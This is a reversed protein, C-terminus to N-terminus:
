DRRSFRDLLDRLGERLQERTDGGLEAVQERLEHLAAERAELRRRRRVTRRSEHLGGLIGQNANYLYSSFQVLVDDLSILGALKGEKVLPIRRIRNDAMMQLLTEIDAAEDATVPNTTMVDAACTKDADLDAAVLRCVMDRDTIIGRPVGAEAVVVCGVTNLDMLDAVEVCSEDPAVTVVDSSYRESGLM